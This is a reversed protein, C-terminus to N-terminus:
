AFKRLCWQKFEVDKEEELKVGIEHKESEQLKPIFELEQTLANQFENLCLKIKIKYNKFKGVNETYKFKDLYIEQEVPNTVISKIKSIDAKYYSILEKLQKLVGDIEGKRLEQAYLFKYKEVYLYYIPAKPAGIYAPNENEKEAKRIKESITKLEISFKEFQRKLSDSDETFVKLLEKTKIDKIRQNYITQVENSHEKILQPEFNSMYWYLMEYKNDQALSNKFKESITQDQLLIDKIEENIKTIHEYYVQNSVEVLQNYKNRLTVSSTQLRKYESSDPKLFKLKNRYDRYTEWLGKYSEQSEVLDSYLKVLGAINNVKQQFRRFKDNEKDNNLIALNKIRESFQKAEEQKSLIQYSEDLKDLRGDILIEGFRTLLTDREPQQLKDIIDFYSEKNCTNYFEYIKSVEQDFFTYFSKLKFQAERFDKLRQQLYGELSKKVSFPDNQNKMLDKQAEELMVVMINVLDYYKVAEQEIELLLSLKALNKETTTLSSKELEPFAKKNETIINISEEITSLFQKEHIPIEELVLSSAKTQLLTAVFLQHAWSMLYPFGIFKQQIRKRFDASELYKNALNNIIKPLNNCLSKLTIVEQKFEAELPTLPSFDSKINSEYFSFALKQINSINKLMKIVIVYHTIESQSDIVRKAQSDIFNQLSNIKTEVETNIIKISSILLKIEEENKNDKEIGQKATLFDLSNIYFRYNEEDDVQNDNILEIIIGIIEQLSNIRGSNNKIILMEVAVGLYFYMQLLSFQVAQSFVKGYRNLLQECKSNQQWLQIFKQFDKKNGADMYFDIINGLEEQINNVLETLEQPVQRIEKTTSTTLNYFFDEFENVLLLTAFDQEPSGTDDEAQMRSIKEVIEQGLKIAEQTTWLFAEESTTLLQDRTVKKNDKDSFM